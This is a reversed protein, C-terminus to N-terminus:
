ERSVTVETVKPPISQETMRGGPWRVQIATASGATGLVTTASDQSWYGSGAHVERAAGWTGGFRLRMVAGIGAPNETPGELRVRLGARARANRFLLTNFNNQGVALDVRGDRDFDAVAAGRQEGTGNIGSVQGPVAEFSGRGNGRVILGRGAELRSEDLRFAFFNQALFVDDSGDGDFDAVTVGFVPAFQAEVALPRAEFRGNRNLFVTTELTVARAASAKGAAAALVDDATARSWAAHTPFTAALWPIAAALDDRLHRPVLARRQPDFETELIDVAGRGGVDGYFLTLPQETTARWCSNRGWNGAILDLQGDGDFDGAAVSQWLGTLGALGLKRTADQLHGRENRFIRIPGWECALVLEPWGDADLDSWTAGNVLGAGSLLRTNNTDVIWTGSDDHLITSPTAEPYRGPIAQGGVFLDLDGDADMDGMALPGPSSGVPVRSKRRGQVVNFVELAVASGAAQEYLSSGVVILREGGTRQWGLITTQDGTATAAWAGNTSREFSRGNVNRFVGPKGGAGTGLILDDWGDGDIDFWTVGPGGQSLKRPLLPQRAFDDFPPDEHRHQLLGSVDKFWPAVATHRRTERRAAMSNEDLDYRHNPRVDAVESVTGNRWTISLRLGNGASGPAFVRTTDNGAMYHGGSTVEHVQNSVTAGLLAIKAGIAQTNPARGRLRVTVRPEPSDNRFLAAAGLRNVVVDLDGDNDLDALAAGHNVAPADLGWDSTKEEFRLNGRNRFAVVPMTLPPYLRAHELRARAFALPLNTAALPTRRWSEQQARIAETTDLDQIDRVYGATILLDDYGDLDVDLFLPSWSWDSAELGALCAIEAFTGDGRNLLLTNRPTQIREAISEPRPPTPSKAVAQRRRMEPSRSLMDVAFIDLHGDRNIDSFDVGMSSAPIKRVAAPGIEKFRGRGGNIWVRDPTWYDNCVYLDPAGDNNLDRFAAALGWDLPTNTLALGREDYFAGNTWSTFGFRGRGDNLYLVDPEGFEQLTGNMFTLRNQLQPPVTPKRNVFILPVRPWDRIDDNRNNCAYLDPTGNGDIDALAITQNAFPTATAAASTQDSFRGRGDNIFCFVGRGVSGVLLDLWADGNVDAFVAAHYYLRPFKLGASDTIDEFKWGSRNRFLRNGQNLSSFFLDTWGDNDFDGAAVGSGNNLVRNDSSAAEELTNTFTVGTQAPSLLTFGPQGAAPVNLATVRFGPVAGALPLVIAAIMGALAVQRISRM